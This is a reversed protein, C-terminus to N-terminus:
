KEKWFKLLPHILTGCKKVASEQFALPRFQKTSLCFAPGAAPTSAKYQLSTNVLFGLCPRPMPQLGGGIPPVPYGIHM